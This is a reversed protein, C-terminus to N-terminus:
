RSLTAAVAAIAWETQTLLADEKVMPLQQYPDRLQSFGKLLGILASM